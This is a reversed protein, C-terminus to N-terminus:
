QGASAVFEIIEDLSPEYSDNTEVRLLPFDFSARMESTVVAMRATASAVHEEITRYGLADLM